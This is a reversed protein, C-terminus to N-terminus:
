FAAHDADVGGDRRTGAAKFPNAKRNWDIPGNPDLVFQEFVIFHTAGVYTHARRAHRVIEGLLQVKGVIGASTM